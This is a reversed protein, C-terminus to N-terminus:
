HKKRKVKKNPNTQQKYGLSLEWYISEKQGSIHFKHVDVFVTLLKKKM